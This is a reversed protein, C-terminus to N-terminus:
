LPDLPLPAFDITKSLSAEAFWRHLVPKLGEFRAECEASLSLPFSRWRAGRQPPILLVLIWFCSKLLRKLGSVSDCISMM